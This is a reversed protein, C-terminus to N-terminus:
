TTLMFLVKLISKFGNHVGVTKQQQQLILLFINKNSQPWRPLQATYRARCDLLYMCLLITFAKSSRAPLRTNIIKDPPRWAKRSDKPYGGSFVCFNSNWIRGTSVRVVFIDPPSLGLSTICTACTVQCYISIYVKSQDHLTTLWNQKIWHM